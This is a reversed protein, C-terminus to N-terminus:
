NRRDDLVPFRARTKRVVEPDVDAVLMTEGAGAGDALEEGFPGIIASDGVYDVGGGSGVRNAGVVYALNEIARARLLTRWHDRRKEPWNAPIVYCDTDRAIAWFEDAFRLDYCVFLSVRVGEVDVTM